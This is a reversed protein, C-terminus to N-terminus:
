EAVVEIVPRATAEIKVIWTDRNTFALSKAAEVALEYTPYTKYVSRVVAYRVVKEESM